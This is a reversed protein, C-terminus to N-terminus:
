TLFRFGGCQEEKSTKMLWVFASQGLMPELCRLPVVQKSHSLSYHTELPWLTGRHVSKRFTEDLKMLSDRIITCSIMIGWTFYSLAKGPRSFGLTSFIFKPLTHLTFIIHLDLSSLMLFLTGCIGIERLINPIQQFSASLLPFFDHFDISPLSLYGPLNCVRVSHYVTYAVWKNKM